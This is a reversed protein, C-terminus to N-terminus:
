IQPALTIKSNVATIRRILQRETKNRIAEGHCDTVLTLKGGRGVLKCIFMGDGDAEILMSKSKAIMGFSAPSIKRKPLATQKPPEQEDAYSPRSSIKVSWGSVDKALFTTVTSGDPFRTVSDVEPIQDRVWITSVTRCVEKECVVLELLEVPHYDNPNSSPIYLARTTACLVTVPVTTEVKDVFEAIALEEGPPLKCNLRTFLSAKQIKPTPM